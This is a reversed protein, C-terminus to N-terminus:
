FRLQRSGGQRGLSMPWPGLATGVGSALSPLCWCPAKPPAVSTCLVQGSLAAMQVGLDESVPLLLTSDWCLVARLELPEHSVPPCAAGLGPGPLGWLGASNEPPVLCPCHGAASPFGVSWAPAKLGSSLWDGMIVPVWGLLNDCPAAGLTVCVGAHPPQARGHLRLLALPSGCGAAPCPTGPAGLLVGAARFSGVAERPSQRQGCSLGSDRSGM